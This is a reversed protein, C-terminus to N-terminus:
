RAGKGLHALLRSLLVGEEDRHVLLRAGGAAVFEWAPGLSIAPVEDVEVKVLRLDPASAVPQRGLKWRWWRLRAEEVGHRGAFVGLEDGSEAWKALLAAWEAAARRHKTAIPRRSM